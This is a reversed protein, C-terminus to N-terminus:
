VKVGKVKIAKKKIEKGKEDDLYMPMFGIHIDKSLEIISLENKHTRVLRMQKIDLLECTKIVTKFHHWKFYGKGLKIISDEKPVKKGTPEREEEEITGEGDCIPCTGSITYYEGDSDAYYDADVEGDGDCEPCQVVKYKIKMEPEQPCRKLADQLDSVLLPEDCNYERVPVKSGLDRIEYKGSVCESNVMILIHGESAWVRGDNEQIFPTKLTDRLANEDEVYLDFIEKENKIKM